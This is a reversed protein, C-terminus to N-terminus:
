DCLRGQGLLASMQRQYEAQRKISIGAARLTDDPTTTPELESASLEELFEAMARMLRIAKPRCHECFDAATTISKIPKVTAM